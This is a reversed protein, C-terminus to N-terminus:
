GEAVVSMGTCLTKTLPFSAFLEVIETNMTEANEMSVSSDQVLLQETSKNPSSAKSKAFHNITCPVSLV